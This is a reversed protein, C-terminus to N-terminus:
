AERAQPRSGCPEAQQGEAGARAHASVAAGVREVAVAFQQVRSKVHPVLLMWHLPDAIPLECVRQLCEFLLLSAQLPRGFGLMVRDSLSKFDVSILNKRDVARHLEGFHTSRRFAGVLEKRTIFCLVKREDVFESLKALPLDVPQVAAPKGCGLRERGQTRLSFSPGGAARRESLAVPDSQGADFGGKCAFSCLRCEELREVVKDFLEDRTIFEYSSALTDVVTGAIDYVDCTHDLKCNYHERAHHYRKLAHKAIDEVLKGNSVELVYVMKAGDALATNLTAERKSDDIAKGIKHQLYTSFSTVFMQQEEGSLEQRLLALLRDDQVRAM